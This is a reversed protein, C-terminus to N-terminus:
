VHWGMWYKSGHDLLSEGGM